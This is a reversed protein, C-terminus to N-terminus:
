KKVGTITTSRSGNGGEDSKVDISIKVVPANLSDGPAWVFSFDTSGSGPLQNDELVFSKKGIVEGASSSISIGTGAVLPNGYIDKVSYNFTRAKNLENYEFFTTDAGIADTQASLLVKTASQLITTTSTDGYSWAKINAFADVAPNPPFPAATIYSVSAQGLDNTVSSGEIIGYDTNFYVITGPAVPNSYKDGVFATIQNILGSHVLGAINNKNAVVSFHADDPLGGYIALRVPTSVFTKGNRIFSAQLRIPGAKTGSNVTTAVLGNQTVMEETGLFEGGDPGNIIAFKVTTANDKDVLNGSSDKVAFEITATEVLGSGYVYIHSRHENLIEIHAAGGSTSSGGGGGGSTDGAALKTLVIDPMTYSQGKIVLRQKSNEKFGTKSATINVLASDKTPSAEITYAGNSNTLVEKYLENAIVLANEVPRDVSNNDYFIVKGQIIVKDNGNDSSDCAVLFFLAFLIAFSFLNLKKM